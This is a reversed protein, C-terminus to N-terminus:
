ELLSVHMDTFSGWSAAMVYFNRCKEEDWWVTVCLLLMFSSWESDPRSLMILLSCCYVFILVYRPCLTFYVLKVESISAFQICKNTFGCHHTTMLLHWTYCSTERYKKVNLNFLYKKSKLSLKESVKESVFVSCKMPELIITCVAWRDPLWFWLLFVTSPDHHQLNTIYYFNFVNIIRVTM